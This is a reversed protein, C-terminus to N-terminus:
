VRVFKVLFLEFIEWISKRAHSDLKANGDLQFAGRRRARVSDPRWGRHAHMSARVARLPRRGGLLLGHGKWVDGITRKGRPSTRFRDQRGNQGVFVVESRPGACEVCSLSLKHRPKRYAGNNNNPSRDFVKLLEHEAVTNYNRGPQKTMCHLRTGVWGIAM